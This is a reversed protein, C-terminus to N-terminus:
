EVDRGSDKEPHVRYEVTTGQPGRDVCQQVLPRHGLHGVVADLTSLNVQEKRIAQFMRSGDKVLDFVQRMSVSGRLADEPLVGSGDDWERWETRGQCTLGCGWSTHNRVCAVDGDPNQRFVELTGFPEHMLCAEQASYRAYEQDM